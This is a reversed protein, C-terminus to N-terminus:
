QGQLLLLLLVRLQIPAHLLAKCLQLQVAHLYLSQRLVELHPSPSSAIGIAEVRVVREIRVQRRELGNYATEHALQREVKTENNKASTAM